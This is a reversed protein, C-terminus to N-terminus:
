TGVVNEKVYNQVAQQIAGIPSILTSGNSAQCTLGGEFSLLSSGYQTQQIMLRRLLSLSTGNESCVCSQTNSDFPCSKPGEPGWWRNGISADGFILTGYQKSAGRLFAYFLQDNPLGQATEAGVATYYGSIAFYHPYYLSNLSMMRFKLDSELREFHQRLYLYSEVRSQRPHQSVYGMYRGDQEGNDMGMFRHGLAKVLLDYKEQSLHYECVGFSPEPDCDDTDGPVYNSIDVLWLWPRSELEKISDDISALVPYQPWVATGLNTENYRDLADKSIGGRYGMFLPSSIVPPSTHTRKQNPHNQLDVDHACLRIKSEALQVSAVVLLYLIRM